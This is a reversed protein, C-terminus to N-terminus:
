RLSTCREGFLRVVGVLKHQLIPRCDRSVTLLDDADDDISENMKKLREVVAQESQDEFPSFFRETISRGSSVRRYRICSFLVMEGVKSLKDNALLALEDLTTLLAEM